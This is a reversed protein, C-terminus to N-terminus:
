SGAARRPARTMAEPFRRRGSPAQLATADGEDRVGLARVTVWIPHRGEIRLGALLSQALAPLSIGAEDPGLRRLARAARGDRLEVHVELAGATASRSCLTAQLDDALSRVTGAPEGSARRDEDLPAFRVLRQPGADAGVIRPDDGRAMRVLVVGPNGILRAAQHPEIGSLAGLDAVGAARLRACARADLGELAELPLGALFRREYGPLVFLLGVPAALWAAVRAAVRTSAVGCAAEIGLAEHLRGRIRDALRRASAPGESSSLDIAIEDLRTWDFPASATRVIEAARTAVDVYPAIAGPEFTAEPCRRAAARLLMGVEVGAARAERSAAMVTGRSTPGGGVIVAQGRLAPRRLREVAVAFDTFRLHLIQPSVARFDL